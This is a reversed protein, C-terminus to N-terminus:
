FNKIPQIILLDDEFEWPKDFCDHKENSVLTVIPTGDDLFNRIIWRDKMEKTTIMDNEALEIGRYRAKKYQKYVFNNNRFEAKEIDEKSCSCNEQINWCAPCTSKFFIGM